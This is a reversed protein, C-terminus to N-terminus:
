FQIVLILDIINDFISCAFTSTRNKAKINKKSLTNYNRLPINGRERAKFFRKEYRGFM